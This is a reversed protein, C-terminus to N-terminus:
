PAAAQRPLSHSRVSRPDHGSIPEFAAPGLAPLTLCVLITMFEIMNSEFFVSTGAVLLGLTWVLIHRVNAHAALMGAASAAIVFTWSIAGPLGALRYADLLINHVWV